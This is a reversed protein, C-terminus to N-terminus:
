HSVAFTSKVPNLELNITTVTNGHPDISWSAPWSTIVGTHSDWKELSLKGKLCVTTNVRTNTSNAFLYIQRGDKQKHLYSFVGLEETPLNRYKDVGPLIDTDPKELSEVRAIRVDPETILADISSRLNETNVKRIYHICGGNQNTQIFNSKPQNAAVDFGFMQKMLTLVENDKGFEASKAPIEGTAIIKGGSQYYDYIKKLAPLSIVQMSPLIILRYQQGTIQAHLTLTGKKVSYQETVLNDHQVFTFDRRVQNTLLDSIKNYDTGTPVDKGPGLEKKRLFDSWSELSEIPFYLAIDAVRCGGQLLSISRGAWTTYQPFAPALAKNEHMILPRIRMKGPTLWMGHPILFNVGRAMAEMAIRYLMLSDTEESTYNGYIEAAVVPRNYVDAASSILKFGPRGYPYGHIIDLLPIQQYRYFKFPDGYMDNTNPEYNGCPHGMASIGREACWQSIIKPYTAMLEARISFLNTRASQTESGITYWLAPYYIIAKKNYKKEFQTAIDASWMTTNGYYGIDDFFTKTITNGFYPKLHKDYRDYTMTMFKRIAEESMFDVVNDLHGKLYFTMIKWSGVPVKWTLAHGKVKDSLDIREFTLTNLAVTGQYNEDWDIQENILNQPGAYEKEAKTLFKRTFNPYVKEFQGGAIGSPFDLDDYMVVQKGHQKSYNLIFRYRDFFDDSLFTPTTGPSVYPNAGWSNGQSVPLITVGGFGDKLYADQLQQFLKAESMEGNMHWFPQPRFNNSPNAFEQQWGTNNTQAIGLVSLSLFLQAVLFIQKM